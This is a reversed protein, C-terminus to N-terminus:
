KSGVREHLWSEVRKVTSCLKKTGEHSLKILGLLEAPGM